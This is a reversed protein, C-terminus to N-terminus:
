ELSQFFSYMAETYFCPIGHYTGGYHSDDHRCWVTEVGCGEYHVCGPDVPSGGNFSNCSSVQFPTTQATCMNVDAIQQVVSAGDGGEREADMIGQIYMTPVVVTQNFAAWGAVPVIARFNFHEFDAKRSDQTLAQLMGGAGYSHGTGYVRNMDICYNEVLDTYLDKAIPMHTDYDYCGDAVPAAVIYETEFPSGATESLYPTGNQDGGGGCGHFGFLVPMPTNGDYAEPFRLWSKDPDYVTGGDPRGGKGCGPSPMVDAGANSGGTGDGGGTGLGGGAATDTGGTGLGAGGTGQAGGSMALGGTGLTSGGTGQSGGSGLTGGSAVEGGSGSGGDGSSNAGNDGLDSSCALTLLSFTVGVLFGLNRM